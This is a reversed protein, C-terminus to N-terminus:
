SADSKEKPPNTSPSPPCLQEQMYLPTLARISGEPVNPKSFSLCQAFEIYNGDERKSRALEYYWAIPTPASEM